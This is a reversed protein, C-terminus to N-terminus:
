ILFTKFNMKFENSSNENFSLIKFSHNYNLRKIFIFYYSLSDPFDGKM